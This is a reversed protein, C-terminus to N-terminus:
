GSIATFYVAASIGLELGQYDTREDFGGLQPIVAHLDNVALFPIGLAAADDLGYVRRGLGELQLELGAFVGGDSEIVQALSFVVGARSVAGREEADDGDTRVPRDIVLQAGSVVYVRLGGHM